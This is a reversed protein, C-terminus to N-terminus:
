AAELEQKIRAVAEPVRGAMEKDMLKIHCDRKDIGLEDRLKKYAQGRKLPGDRWLPDFTAHAAKRAEHTEADVLPHRDWSWLGCPECQNRIGYRTMREGAVNGCKPCTPIERGEAEQAYHNGNTM